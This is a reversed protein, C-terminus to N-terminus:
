VIMCYAVILAGVCGDQTDMCIAEGSTLVVHNFCVGGEGGEEAIHAVCTHCLLKSLMDQLLRTHWGREVM